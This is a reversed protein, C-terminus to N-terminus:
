INGHEVMEEKIKIQGHKIHDRVTSIDNHINKLDYGSDQLDKLISLSLNYLYQERAFVECFDQAMVAIVRKGLHFCNQDRFMSYNVWEKNTGVYMLKIQFITQKEM